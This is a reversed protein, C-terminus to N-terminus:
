HAIIIVTQRNKVREWCWRLLQPTYEDISTLLDYYLFAAFDNIRKDPNYKVYERVLNTLIRCKNSDKRNIQNRSITSAIRWHCGNRILRKKYLDM